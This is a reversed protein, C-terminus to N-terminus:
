APEAGTAAGPSTPATRHNADPGPVLSWARQTMARESM